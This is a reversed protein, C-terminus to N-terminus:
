NEKSSKASFIARVLEIPPKYKTYSFITKALNLEAVSVNLEHSPEKEAILQITYGIENMTGLVRKNYTYRTCIILM